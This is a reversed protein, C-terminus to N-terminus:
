GCSAMVMGICFAHGTISRLVEDIMERPDDKM